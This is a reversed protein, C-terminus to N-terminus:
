DNAEPACPAPIQCAIREALARARSGRNVEDAVRARAQMMNAKIREGQGHVGNLRERESGTAFRGSRTEAAVRRVLTERQRILRQLEGPCELSASRELLSATVNELSTLLEELM